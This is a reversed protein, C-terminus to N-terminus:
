STCHPASLLQEGSDQGFPLDPLLVFSQPQKFGSFKLTFYLAAIPLLFM